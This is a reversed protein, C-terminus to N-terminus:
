VILLGSNRLHKYILFVIIGIVYDINWYKNRSQWRNASYNIERQRKHEKQTKQQSGATKQTVEARLYMIRAQTM